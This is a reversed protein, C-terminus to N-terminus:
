ARGDRRRRAVAAAVAELEAAVEALPRRTDIEATSGKRLLPEVTVLDDAIRRREAETKGFDNTARATVRELLVNLPASLLVVADFRAYFRGQNAVCGSVFLTADRHDALLVDMRGEHWLREPGSSGPFVVEHVWDDYDTDVVTHGRRALEELVSSKGVGSM